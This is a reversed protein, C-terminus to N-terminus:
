DSSFLFGILFFITAIFTKKSATKDFFLSAFEAISLFLLTFIDFISFGFIVLRYTNKSAFDFSLSIPFTVIVGLLLIFSVTLLIYKSRNQTKQDM